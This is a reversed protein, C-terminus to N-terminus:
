CIRPLPSGLPEDLPQDIGTIRRVVVPAVKQAIVKGILSAELCRSLTRLLSVTRSGCGVPVALVMTGENPVHLPDLGLLECVGRIEPSVPIQSQDIWM